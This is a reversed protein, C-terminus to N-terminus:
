RTGSNSQLSDNVQHVASLLQHFSSITSETQIIISPPHELKPRRKEAHKNPPALPQNISSATSDLQFHKTNYAIIVTICFTILSFSIHTSIFIIDSIAHRTPGM